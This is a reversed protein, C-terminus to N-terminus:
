YLAWALMTQVYQKSTTSGTNSPRVNADSRASFCPARNPIASSAVAQHESGSLHAHAGGGTTVEMQQTTGEPSSSDSVM